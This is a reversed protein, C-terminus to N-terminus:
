LLVWHEALDNSESLSMPQNMIDKVIKDINDVTKCDGYVYMRKGTSDQTRDQTGKENPEITGFKQCSCLNLILAGTTGSSEEECDSFGMYNNKLVADM